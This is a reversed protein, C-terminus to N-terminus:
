DGKRKQSMILFKRRQEDTILLEFYNGKFVNAYISKEEDYFRENVKESLAFEKKKWETTNDEVVEEITALARYFMLMYCQLDIPYLNLIGKDM